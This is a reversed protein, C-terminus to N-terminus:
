SDCLPFKTRLWVLSRPCPRSPRLAQHLINGSGLCHFFPTKWAVALGELTDRAISKDQTRARSPIAIMFISVIGIFSGLADVFFCGSTGILPILAGGFAPGFLASGNFVM